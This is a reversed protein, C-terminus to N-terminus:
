TKIYSIGWSSLQFISKFQAIDVEELALLAELEVAGEFFVEFIIHSQVFLEDL